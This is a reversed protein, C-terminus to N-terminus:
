ISLLQRTQQLLSDPCDIITLWNATRFDDWGALWSSCRTYKLVQDFPNNVDYQVTKGDLTLNQLVLKLLERKQEPESSLFLEKGRNVLTLIYESTLYYDEDAIQLKGMKDQLQTQKDRCEKVKKDYEDTTIWWL